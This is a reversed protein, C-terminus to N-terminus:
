LILDALLWPLNFMTKSLLGPDKLMGTITKGALDMDGARELSSHHEGIIRFLRDKGKDNLQNLVRHIMLHIRLDNGIMAKWKKEYDDECAFKACIGGFVIGGGTSAKVQGAADGVTIIGPYQTRMTPRHLPIIGFTESQKVTSKIRGEKELKKIFSELYPRPNSKVCLGVRATDGIPIIWSFFDPVNFYLEVFDQDCEVKMEYQGGILFESPKDIGLRTHLTYDTGTALITKGTEVTKGSKLAIGGKASTAWGEIFRAGSDIASDLLHNDFGLRDVAYAKTEGGDVVIEVGSPSYIKAGRIKNVVFGGPKVSMRELGSKSILGACEAKRERQGVIAVENLRSGHIASLSGAPGNGVVVADYRM